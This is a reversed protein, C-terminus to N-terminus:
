GIMLENKVKNYKESLTLIYFEKEFQNLTQFYQSDCLVGLPNYCDESALTRVREIFEIDEQDKITVYSTEAQLKKLALANQIFYGSAKNRSIKPTEEYNKKMLRQKALNALFKLENNKM